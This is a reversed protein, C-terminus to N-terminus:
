LKFANIRSQLYPREGLTERKRTATKLRKNDGLTIQIRFGYSGLKITPQVLVTQRMSKKETTSCLFDATSFTGFHQM